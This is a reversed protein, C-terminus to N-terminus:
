RPYTRFSEGGARGHLERAIVSVPLLQLPLTLFSAFLTAGVQVVLGAGQDLPGEGFIPRYYGPAFFLTFLSAAARCLLVAVQSALTTVILLGLITILQGQSARRGVLLTAAVSRSGLAAFPIALVNRAFARIAPISGLVLLPLLLLLAISRATGESVGLHPLLLLPSWAVAAALGIGALGLVAVLLVVLATVALLRPGRRVLDLLIGNVPPDPGDGLMRLALTQGGIGGALLWVGAAVWAVGAAARAAANSPHPGIAASAIARVIVFLLAATAAVPLLLALWLLFHRLYLRLTQELVIERLPRSM